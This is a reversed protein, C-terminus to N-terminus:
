GSILTEPSCYIHGLPIQWFNWVFVFSFICRTQLIDKKGTLFIFELKGSASSILLSIFFWFTCQRKMFTYPCQAWSSMHLYKLCFKSRSYTSKTDFSLVATQSNRCCGLLRGTIIEVFNQLDLMKCDGQGWEAIWAQGVTGAHLVLM